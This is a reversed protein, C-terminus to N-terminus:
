KWRKVMRLIMILDHKCGLLYAATLVVSYLSSMHLLDMLILLPLYGVVIGTALVRVNKTRSITPYEVTIEHVQFRVTPWKGTQMNYMVIHGLEHLVIAISFIIVILIITIIM